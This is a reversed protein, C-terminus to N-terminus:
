NAKFTITSTMRAFEVAVAARQMAEVDFPEPYRATLACIAASLESADNDGIFLLRLDDQPADLLQGITQIGRDECCLHYWRIVNLWTVHLNRIHDPVALSAFPSQQEPQASDFTIGGDWELNVPAGCSACAAVKDDYSDDDLHAEGRYGCATCRYVYLVQKV